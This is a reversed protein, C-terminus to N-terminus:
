KDIVQACIRGRIVFLADGHRINVGRRDAHARGERMESGEDEATQGGSCRTMYQGGAGICGGELEELLLDAGDEDLAAELAVGGGGLHLAAEGQVGAIGDEGTAVGARREDSAVRVFAQEDLGDTVLVLVHLHRRLLLERGSLHFGQDLPYFHASRVWAGACGGGFGGRAHVQM